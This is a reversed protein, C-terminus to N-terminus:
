AQEDLLFPGRRFSVAGGSADYGAVAQSLHDLTERIAHAGVRLLRRNEAAVAEIEFVLSRLASRHETLVLPWPEPAIAALEALTTEAPLDLADALAQVEVARVVESTRLEDLAARLEDDARNLWRTAGASLIHQEQVLKFLLHELTARESWLIAALAAFADTDHPTRVGPQLSM